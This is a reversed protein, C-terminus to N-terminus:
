STMQLKQMARMLERNEFELFEPLPKEMRSTLRKALTLSTEPLGALEQAIALADEEFTEMAICRNALGLAMAEDVSISKRSLLIEITKGRGLIRSLFWAGGGKPILGLELEPNQFVANEGLIRYDCALSIAAFMPLIQGCDASIFFLSSDLIRLILQDIARYLRLVSEAPIRASRVMDFLSLFEERRARRPPHLILVISV